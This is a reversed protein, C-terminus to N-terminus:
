HAKFLAPQCGPVLGGFGHVSDDGHTTGQVPPARDVEEMINIALPRQKENIVTINM